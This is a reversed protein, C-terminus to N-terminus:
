QNIRAKKRVVDVILILLPLFLGFTLDFPFDYKSLFSQFEVMNPSIIISLVLIIMGLPLTLPRFEKLNLLQALGMASAYFCITLKFFISIFWMGAVIAEVRQFFNAINIQKALAYSPFLNRATFDAGLVLISYVTIIIIVLGGVLSAAIFSKKAEKTKNVFPFLMLFIVAEMFPFAIVSTSGKLIPKIGQEFVPKIKNVEFEVPLTVLIIIFFLIVWPFLIEGTRAIPELGLRTGMIVISLFIIGIFQIPTEPMIQVTIFDEINRLIHAALYMFFFLFLLSVIKGLWKGLILESYQFLTKEPFRSGIISYLCVLILGFGVGIVASIWADQKAATALISPMFLIAPGFM